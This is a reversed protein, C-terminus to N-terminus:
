RRRLGMEDLVREDDRWESKVKVRLDLYVRSNFYRELEQRAVTGIEKIMAGGRGIVIPKQSEREVLITAYISFRPDDGPEEFSDIVVATSFPLEDRTLRLVQERVVEAAFFREPQDTVYDPPYFPEGEPLHELFVRELVDVHTGDLASLPVFDVFAHAQRYRDIIPLLRNKAILDVKNMALVAPVAAQTVLDLMYRDGPGEKASVDVVLTLLDVDRMAELAVDVMRVNMRHMPKHVGPTDVFVVQGEPYNKVGVIRTRTTQPKDSVIALKHGVIRNLLTSKGANPRGVLSVFGAKM